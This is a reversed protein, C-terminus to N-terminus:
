ELECGMQECVLHRRRQLSRRRYLGGLTLLLEALLVLGDGVPHHM